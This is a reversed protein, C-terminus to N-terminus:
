SKNTKQLYSIVIKGESSYSAEYGASLAYFHVVLLGLLNIFIKTMIFTSEVNGHGEFMFPIAHMFVKAKNRKAIEITLNQSNNVALKGLKIFGKSPYEIAIM